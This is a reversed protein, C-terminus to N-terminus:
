QQIKKFFIYVHYFHMQKKNSMMVSPHHCQSILLNAGPFNSYFKLFMIELYNWYNIAWTDRTLKGKSSHWEVKSIIFWSQNLYHSPATLCCAMVQALTSGSRKDGYPTVLGWHALERRTSSLCWTYGGKKVRQPQTFYIFLLSFMMPESLLKDGSHHWAM